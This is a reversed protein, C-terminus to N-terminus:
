AAKRTSMGLSGALISIIGIVILYPSVASMIIIVQGGGVPAAAAAIPLKPQDFMKFPEAYAETIEPLLLARDYVIVHDIQGLMYDRLETFYNVGIHFEPDTIAPFATTDTTGPVADLYVQHDTTTRSVLVAQQWKGTTITQISTCGGIDIAAQLKDDDDDIRIQYRRLGNGTTAYRFLTYEDVTTSPLVDCKFWAVITVPPYIYLPPLDAVDVYDLTARDFDLTNGFKGPVSHTSGVLTGHNGNGSLDYTTGTVGPKDNFLWIGVFGQANLQDEGMNPKDVPYAWCMSAIFLLLLLRKM